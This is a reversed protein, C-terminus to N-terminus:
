STNLFLDWGYLQPQSKKFYFINPQNKRSKNKMNINFKFYSSYTKVQNTKFKYLKYCHKITQSEIKNNQIRIFILM